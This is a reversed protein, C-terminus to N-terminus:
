RNTLKYFPNFYTIINEKRKLFVANCVYWVTLSFATAVAAGNNGFQPVLLFNLGLNIVLALIAINQYQKQYGIMQMIIAASGMFSNILHVLSLILLVQFGSKFEEGFLGLLWQNFIILVLVIGVTVVFNLNTSFQVLKRFELAKKDFYLRVVKPALGSNIADMAFSAGLAIKIAVNYVGIEQDSVYIGLVFSDIWGLFVTITTSIFMPFSERLFRWSNIQTKLTIVNFNRYAIIFALIFLFLTSYFHAKIANLPDLNFFDFTILIMAALSFKGANNFFAYWNNLGKARLVGAFAKIMTWGPIAFIAWNYVPLFQPKKFLTISIFDRFLYLIGTIVVSLLFVKLVVKYFLGPDTKWLDPDSYYKVLNVDIGFTSVASAFMFIAFGLTVLGNMSAGYRSAILYTFIYGGIIGLGRFILFGFSKSLIDKNNPNAITHKIQSKLKKM